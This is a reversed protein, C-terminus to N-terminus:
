LIEGWVFNLLIIYYLVLLNLPRRGKGNTHFTKFNLTVMQNFNFNSPIIKSKTFLKIRLLLWGVSEEGIRKGSTYYM